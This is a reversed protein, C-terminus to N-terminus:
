FAEIPMGGGKGGVSFVSRILECLRKFLWFCLVFCAWVFVCAHACVSERMCEWWGCWWSFLLSQTEDNLFSLSRDNLKIRHLTNYDFDFRKLQLTLLYPFTLFKLGQFVALWCVMSPWSIADFKTDPLLRTITCLQFLISVFNFFFVIVGGLFFCCFFGGFILVGFMKFIFYEHLPVICCAM